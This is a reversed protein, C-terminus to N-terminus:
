GECLTTQENVNMSDHWVASHAQKLDDNGQKLFTYTRQLESYAERLNALARTLNGYKKDLNCYEQVVALMWLERIWDYLGLEDVLKQLVMM